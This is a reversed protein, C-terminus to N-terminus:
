PNGALRALWYEWSRGVQGPTLKAVLDIEGPSLGEVPGLMRAQTLAEANRCSHVARFVAERLSRGAVTAGHRAMLVIWHPGLARALSAGQQATAVLLNTDGFDDRSDWLPMMAGGAAGLQSIPVLATGTVCYPLIAAAHHHCIAHVDPRAAYIAGHIVGEIYLRRSTPTVPRSDLTLEVIDGAEVANPSKSCSILYRDPHDPHRASVHGFADVVAEHSLIRNALVLDDRLESLSGTM